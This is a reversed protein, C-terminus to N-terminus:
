CMEGLKQCFLNFADEIEEETFSENKRSQEFFIDKIDLEKEDVEEDYLTTDNATYVKQIFTDPNVLYKINKVSSIVENYLEVNNANMLRTDKVNLYVFDEDTYNNCFEIVKDASDFSKSIVRKTCKIEVSEVNKLKNNDTEVVMFYKKFNAESKSFAIPSGSYVIHEKKGVNQKKHLHGLAIYDANKPLVGYELGYLGGINYDSESESVECNNIFLHGIVLNFTDDQLYENKIKLLEKIRNGYEKISFLDEANKYFSLNEESPYGLNIVSIVENKFELRFTGNQIDFLRFYDTKFESLGNLINDSINSVIIVGDKLTLPRSAGIRKVNDHNGANIIVITKKSKTIKALANYFLNESIADPNPVNYIDGAIVVIDVDNDECYECIYDVFKMHEDFLDFRELKKGIHWDSTHLIKM